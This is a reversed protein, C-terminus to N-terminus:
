ADRWFETDHVIQGSVASAICESTSAFCVETGLNGPAYYAWKGSATMVTGAKNNLLLGYYTCTDTIIKVGAQQLEVLEGSAHLQQFVYRSTSIFFQINPAIPQGDLLAIVRQFEAYSFHPTGLCVATLIKNSYNCLQAKAALIDKRHITIHQDPIQQQLADDVTAAEPTLGVAHFMALSGTSAAVAGLSRLQDDTTTAYLGDIVPLATHCRVGIIHGLLQFFVDDQLWHSPMDGLSIVLNARRNKTQYLGFNPMRGTLAACLDLYQFTKNTRAGIVSNAYVVANSEAWAINDYRSPVSPLHYPACTLEVRCGMGQYLKVLECNKRRHFDLASDTAQQYIDAASASLTTTVAVQAGLDTLKQIVQLDGPGGYYSGVLHAQSIDIFATADTYDAVQKLVTMAFKLAEGHDGNLRQQDLQSLMM